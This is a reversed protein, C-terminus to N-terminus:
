KANRAREIRSRERALSSHTAAMSVSMAMLPVPRRRQRADLEARGPAVNMEGRHMHAEIGLLVEGMEAAGFQAHRAIRVLREELSSLLV